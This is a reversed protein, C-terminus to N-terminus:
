IAIPKDKNLFKNIFYEQGKGTVKPTKSIIIHGNSHTISTEKVTFLELDMSYQTPMNYDTGRRKILYGNERLWEFFRNQGLSVGNQKILKALEGILITTKSASVADAFLVKPKDLEIKAELIKKQEREEKLATLAKIMFDPNNLLEETAYVGHKRIAPIVETALWDTFREAEPKRSTFVLKYVGAESVISMEQNGGLTDVSSVGKMKENLRELAMRSNGIELIECVDKAVFWPENDKVVTRVQCEGYNFVKALQNM